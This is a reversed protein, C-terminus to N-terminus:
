QLVAKLLLDTTLNIGDITVKAQNYFSKRETLKNEIFSIMENESLDKLLPRKAKGGELRKALSKAPMEIYVTLGAENMWSMNDFHCPTGGGTAVVTNEAYPFSKLTDRELERFALEGHEAFYSNINKGLKKEIEHDLDVLEYAMKGALKRALTTKGCGMFGILFIKM